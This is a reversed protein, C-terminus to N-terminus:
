SHRMIQNLKVETERWQSRWKKPAAWQLTPLFLQELAGFFPGQLASSPQYPHNWSADDLRWAEDLLMIYMAILVYSVYYTDCVWWHISINLVNCSQGRHWLYWITGSVVFELTFLLSRVISRPPSPIGASVITKLLLVSAALLPINLQVLGGLWHQFEKNRTKWSQQNERLTRGKCESPKWSCGASPFAVNDSRHRQMEDLGHAITCHHFQSIDLRPLAWRLCRLEDRKSAFSEFCRVRAIGSHTATLDSMDHFGPFWSGCGRTARCQSSLVHCKRPCTLWKAWFQLWSMVSMALMALVNLVNFFTQLIWVVVHCDFFM